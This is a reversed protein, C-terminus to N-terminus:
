LTTGLGYERTFSGMQAWPRSTSSPPPLRRRLSPHHSSFLLLRLAPTDPLWKAEQESSPLATEAASNAAIKEGALGSWDKTM